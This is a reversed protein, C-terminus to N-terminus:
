NYIMGTFMKSDPYFQKLRIRVKDGPYVDQSSPVECLVNLRDDVTVFRKGNYSNGVIGICEDNVKYMEYYKPQHEVLFEKRSTTIEVLHYTNEGITKPYKKVDMVKANIVKNQQFMKVESLDPIYKTDLEGVRIIGDAGGKTVWIRADRIALIQLKTESEDTIIGKKGEKGYNHENLAENALLRNVIVTGNKLMGTVCVTVIAGELARRDGRLFKKADAGQYDEPKFDWALMTPLFINHETPIMENDEDVLMCAYVIDDPADPRDSLPAETLRSLMVRLRGRKGATMKEALFTTEMNYREEPSLDMDDSHYVVRKAGNFSKKKLAGKEKFWNKTFIDRGSTELEELEVLEEAEEVSIEIDADKIIEEEKPPATKKTAKKEAVKTTKAAKTKTTKTEKAAEETKTRAM